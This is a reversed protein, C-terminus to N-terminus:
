HNSTISSLTIKGHPILIFMDFESCEYLSLRAEGLEVFPQTEVFCLVLAVTLFRDPKHAGGPSLASGRQLRVRLTSQLDVIYM